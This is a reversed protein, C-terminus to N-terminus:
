IRTSIKRGEIEDLISQPRNSQPLGELLEALEHISEEYAKSLKERLVLNLQDPTVGKLRGIRQNLWDITWIAPAFGGLKRELMNLFYVNANFKPRSRLSDPVFSSNVGLFCYIQSLTDLPANSIDRYSIVLVHEAGFKRIYPDLQKAYFGREVLEQELPPLNDHFFGEERILSSLRKNIDAGQDFRGKRILWYYGSVMRDVPDRLSAIVKPRGVYECVAHIAEPDYMYDVSIDGMLANRGIFEGYRAEFGVPGHERFWPGGIYMRERKRLPLQIEPHESLCLHLWSTACKQAGIVLFDLPIKAEENM